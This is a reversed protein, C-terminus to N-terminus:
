GQVEIVYLPLVADHDQNFRTAGSVGDYRVQELADRLAGREAKIKSAEGTIKAARMAEALIYIIDYASADVHHPGTKEIARKANESNFAATFKRAKDSS